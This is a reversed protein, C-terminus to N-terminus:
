FMTLLFQEIWSFIAMIQPELMLLVKLLIFPLVMLLLPPASIHPLNEERSMPVKRSPDNTSRILTTHEMKISKSVILNQNDLETSRTKRHAMIIINRKCRYDRTSTHYSSFCDHSGGSQNPHLPNLFFSNPAM